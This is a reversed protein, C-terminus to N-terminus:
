KPNHLKRAPVPVAWGIEPNYQEIKRLLKEDPYGDPVLKAERQLLKVAEKTKTGLDGDEALKALGIKNIFVQVKKVDDTKLKQKVIERKQWDKNGAAFNALLGIALAYNESRNWQMIRGFNETVLYAAGKSGEPTLIATKIDKDNSWKKGDRRVVGMKQWESLAKFKNRGSLSYDFNWPLNVEWGWPINKDWGISTLYNAASASADEFNDWIDIIGDGDFDVGYAHYTTPMFQFHGMAGAWSGRMKKYDFDQEDIIKLAHYLEKKFFDSRRKDYSMETLADIVNYGGFHSGFNTEAGWFAVIYEAPLNYKAEVKDWLPRLEKYKARAKESRIKGAVRNLYDESSLVFELQKRDRVVASPKEHYFDNEGYVKDITAQSIGKQVMEKKLGDLWILYDAYAQSNKGKEGAFACASAGLMAIILLAIIKKMFNIGYLSSM